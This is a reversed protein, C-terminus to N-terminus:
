SGNTKRESRALTYSINSQLVGKNKKINLELGYARGEAHIIETELDPNAIINAFSIYDKLDIMRRYYVGLSAEWATEKWNKAFNM